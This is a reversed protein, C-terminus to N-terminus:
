MLVTLLVVLGATLAFGCTIVGKISTMPGTKGFLANGEIAGAIIVLAIWYGGVHSSETVSFGLHTRALMFFLLPISFLTNTRSACGSRAAGAAAAPNAPQGAAVAVANAIIAKQKPWIVLWVNLFMLTGFLAGTLINIWPPTSLVGIGAAGVELHASIMLMLVGTVFTWM